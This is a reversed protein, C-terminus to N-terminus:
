KLFVMKMTRVYDEATLRYFYVGSAVTEGSANRGDWEVMRRGPPETGDVLERIERGSVDYIALRVRSSKPLDYSIMTSPNFPNPHNAYLEFRTPTDDPDIGTVAGSPTVTLSVTVTFSPTAPDNSHIVANLAYDGPSLVSADSTAELIVSGGAGVTGFSPELHLWRSAGFWEFIQIALTKNDATNIVIDHFTHDSVVVLRGDGIVDYAIVPQEFQDDVLQGAPASVVLIKQPSVLNIEDVGATIEHPHIYPTLGGVGTVPFYGIGSGLAALLENYAERSGGTDAEILVHGGDTVWSVLAQLESAEFLTERNGFWIIDVGALLTSDIPASSETVTAGHSSLYSVITSWFAIGGWGHDGYWLVHLTALPEASESGGGGEALLAAPIAIEANWNLDSGGTNSVTISDLHAEGQVVTVDISAPSVAMVPPSLAAAELHIPFTPTDPDNSSVTLIGTVPGAVTPSFDVSVTQAGLPSVNFTPPTVIFSPVNVSIGSVALTESGLNSVVFQVQKTYGLFVTGFDLLTDSVAISPVGTVVLEVPVTVLPTSPVNTTIRLDAHYVGGVLAVANFGVTVNVSGAPDVTGLIPAFSLWSVAQEGEPPGTNAPAGAISIAIAPNKTNAPAVVSALANPGGPGPGVPRTGAAASGAASAAASGASDAAAPFAAIAFSLPNGGPNSITLIQNSTDGSLLDEHLSAPSVDIAPPVLATAVFHVRAEAEDPDNSTITLSDAVAGPVSPAFTVVLNQSGLVPVTFSPPNFSVDPNASAIGSVQLVDTGGNSVVMTHSSSGGVFLTGFDIQTESLNIDPAGTVHMHASVPIAPTIPDNSTVEILANYDGGILAEADFTVDVVANGGPPVVGSLPEAGIWGALGKRLGSKLDDLNDGAAYAATNSWSQGAPFDGLEFHLVELGDVDYVPGVPYEVVTERRTYDSWGYIDMVDPARNSAIATYRNEWAYVMHYGTDYNWSDYSPSWDVDWDAFNKFVVDDVPGGSINELRTAISVFKENRVFTFRQTIKMRNDITRTVVEVVVRLPDNAIETYSVPTIGARSEYAAWTVNDVGSVRYALTYGSVYAGVELHENGIPYQYPMIEGYNTLGFELHDGSYVAAISPPDTTPNTVNRTPGLPPAASANQLRGTADKGTGANWGANMARDGPFLAAVAGTDPETNIVLNYVLDSGGSNSITLQQTSKGGSFLDAGLSDPAVSIVPPVLGEGQLAIEVTGEDPDNSSVTLTAPIPAATTPAFTVVVDQSANPALNFSSVNVTYDGHSSSISSVDLMDTGDNSIVITRPVAAGIYVPGWDVLVDSVTIDPAGTVHLYAAVAAEPNLPDNNSVVIHANFDGGNQGTANFTVAVDESGGPALIGDTPSLSLWDVHVALWDIVQNGFLQNDNEGIAWNAFVEDSVAIIRGQGAESYGIAHNGVMDDVLKGAPSVVDLSSIPGSLYATSVGETTQHPFIATTSGFQAAPYLYSIGTGLGSLIANISDGVEDSEFLIAGGGVLWAQVAQIETPSFPTYFDATWLLDYDELLAPTIPSLNETVTAGRSVVDAVIVSWNGVSPQSHAVDWLIRVGTLDGLTAAIPTTRISGPRPPRGSEPDVADSVPATLTYSRAAAGGLDVPAAHWVLNNGGSNAITFSTTSTEGTYLSDWLSDPSVSIIPPEIGVGHLEVEVVPEDPDNSAITLTGLFPAVSSPAFTVAFDRSEHAALTVSSLDSTYAPLDSSISSVVLVDTGPNSITLTHPIAAGVFVQGWDVLTESVAIDPAGTVHLHAPVSVEPHIPDNNAIVVDADYNGGFLGEADFTVGVDMSTGPPVIGNRPDIALWPVGGLGPIGLWGLQTTGGPTTAGLVGVLATAGTTRDAIRLEAQFTFNNFAALYLQDSVPDYAMGQAYNADFGLSGVPTGVGTTKDISVLQDTVVDHAWMHGDTDVAVAIIGPSGISGIRTGTVAEVDIRFLSSAAISTSTAYMTGDTPDLAMGSWIEGGYPDITGLNVQGGDLTDVRVFENFDNLAYAFSNDGGFFDGAWIFEPAVGVFNLVEPVNLDFRTAQSYAAETSFASGHVALPMPSSAEGPGTSHGDKPALRASAAATGRPFEGSSRPIHITQKVVASAGLAQVEETRVDFELNSLGSNSITLTHPSAQGTFLDDWLSDPTVSIVPPELGEGHLEVEIVPEDPDNSTITLTGLVPAVSTPAFTVTVDHSTGPAISVNAVDATFDGHNSSIGTVDLLDTGENSITVVRASSGGVFVPGYDVVSDSVAIEPAGTVHLHAPVVVQPSVPDNNSIVINADYDGGFMGRADFGVALDMSSLPPVTGNEPAVSLWRVVNGTVLTQYYAVPEGFAASPVDQAPDPPFNSTPAWSWGAGATLQGFSATIPYPFIGQENFYSSVQEFSAAILYYRGAELVADVDGSSYWGLGPGAPTVNSASVLNYTGVPNLGEYVLFWLQTSASPNMYLRHEVLKTTTTCTFLNGRTRPGASFQNDDNGFVEELVAGPVRELNKVHQGSGKVSPTGRDIDGSAGVSVSKPFSAKLRALEVASLPRGVALVDKPLAATGFVQTNSAAGEPEEIAIEFDLNSGGNNAISLTQTSTAGTYLDDSLSSPTVSIVPPAVGEGQLAVLYAPHDPDDSQITLTGAVPGITSPCYTVEVMQSEGLGLSFGSPDVSIEPHDTSLGSVNLTATGINTVVITDRVCIGTYRVGYDIANPSVSIDPANTVHIVAPIPTSPHVPDNTQLDLVALHDGGALQTADFVLEVVISEGAWATGSSPTAHLWSPVSALTFDLSGEGINRITLTETTSGGTYLSTTFYNPFFALQPAGLTTGNPLNSLWSRNGQEDEVILAFFYKTNVNLGPVTFSEPSGAPQPHPVGPVPTASSFNSWYIGSTSYRLDYKTATGVTGDDGTATWQLTATNSGMTAVSLTSVRAPPISDLGSLMTFLNLRGGSVTRGVLAPIVDVSSLIINKVDMHSMLPAASWLLSVAGSVHPTAMSTGSITGYTNGPFTSLIDTGPAGLDVTTQGYNSFTSLQDNRDTSAVSIINDLDYGSPYFPFIDNNTSANGAAAVFLMGHNGADEIASRLAASFGGGGWSNSTLRAGMTTAYQVALIANSTSGFGGSDLFKLPLIRATWSVGVVGIGNNGIAAVTGSTHTGHGNDDSPDNDNNVFDWGRVDDVYGNGDDDIGNAPIEGPNTFINGALDVHHWDCGTDIVGVLVDSGTELSWAEPADIDADPTGGSQGTNHLGWMEPFRPDNPIIEVAEVIYDPEIYDVRSDNRYRDIAGNVDTGDIRWLEAGIRQFRTTVTAGLSTRIALAEAPSTAPNLKVIVQGPVYRDTQQGNTGYAFSTLALFIVIFAGRLSLCRTM